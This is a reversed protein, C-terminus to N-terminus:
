DANTFRDVSRPRFIVAPHKMFGAIGISPSLMFFNGMMTNRDSTPMAPVAVCATACLVVVVVVVFSGLLCDWSAALGAAEPEPVDPEAFVTVVVVVVVSSLLPLVEEPEDPVPLLAEPVLSVLPVLPVLLVLPVVVAGPLLLSVGLLAPVLEPVLVVGPLLSVEPLEPVPDDVDPLPVPVPLVLVSVEPLEPVLPVEPVPLVEPVSVDPLEPILPM